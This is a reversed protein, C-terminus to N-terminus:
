FKHKVSLFQDLRPKKRQEREGKQLGGLLFPWTPLSESNNQQVSDMWTGPPSPLSLTSPLSAILLGQQWRTAAVLFARMGPEAGSVAKKQKSLRGPPLRVSDKEMKVAM